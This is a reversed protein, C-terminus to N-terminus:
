STSRGGTWACGLVNPFVATDYFTSQHPAPQSWWNSIQHVAICPSELSEGSCECVEVRVVPQSRAPRWRCTSFQWHRLLATCNIDADICVSRGIQQHLTRHWHQWCFLHRDLRYRAVLEEDDLSDLPQNRDRIPPKREQAAILLLHSMNRFSLCIGEIFM